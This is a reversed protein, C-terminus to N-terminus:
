DKGNKYKLKKKLEYYLQPHKGWLYTGWFKLIFDLKTILTAKLIKIIRIIKKTAGIKKNYFIEKNTIYFVDPIEKGEECFISNKLRHM